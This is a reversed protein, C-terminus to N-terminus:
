NNFLVEPHFVLVGADTVSVLSQQQLTYLAGIAFEQEVQFRRRILYEVDKALAGAAAGKLVELELANLSQALTALKAQAVDVVRYVLHTGEQESGVHSDTCAVSGFVETLMAPGKSFIGHTVWLHIRKPDVGTSNALGIFTGGGDCIDDVILFEGQEPLADCTFGSLKGTAADRHKYGCFMPVGLLEAIAGSRERSGADPSIVGVLNTISRSYDAIVTDLNVGHFGGIMRGEVPSHPDLCIVADAGASNLLSAYVGAGFPIDKDQRAGPLYPVLLAKFGANEAWSGWLSATILGDPDAGRITLAALDTDIPRTGRISLEGGPFAFGEAEPIFERTKTMSVVM